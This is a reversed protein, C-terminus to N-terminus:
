RQTSSTCSHRCCAIVMRTTHLRRSREPGHESFNTDIEFDNIQTQNEADKALVHLCNRSSSPCEIDHPPHSVRPHTCICIGGERQQKEDKSALTPRVGMKLQDRNSPTDPHALVWESHASQSFPCTESPDHAHM